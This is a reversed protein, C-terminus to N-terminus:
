ISIDLSAGLATNKSSMQSVSYNLYIDLFVKNVIKSGLGVKGIDHMNRGYDNTGIQSGKQDWDFDFSNKFTFRETLQYNIFPAVSLKVGQFNTKTENTGVVREFTSAVGYSLGPINSVFGLSPQIGYGHLTGNGRESAVPMQYFLTTSLWGFSFSAVSPVFLAVRHGNYSRGNSRNATGGYTSNYQVDKKINDQMTVGYSLNMRNKFTYGLKFSQYLQTSGNNDLERDEGDRGGDFRNFTEDSKYNGGISPGTYSTFYNFNFNSVFKKFKNTNVGISMKNTNAYNAYVSSISFLALLITIKM